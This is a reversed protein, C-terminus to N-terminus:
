FISKKRPCTLTGEEMEKSIKVSRWQINESAIRYKLKKLYEGNVAKEDIIRFDIDIKESDSRWTIMVFGRVPSMNTYVKTFPVTKKFCKLDGRYLTHQFITELYKDIKENHRSNKEALHQSWEVHLKQVEENFQKVVRKLEEDKEKILKEYNM